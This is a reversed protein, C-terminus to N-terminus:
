SGYLTATYWRQHYIVELEAVATLEPLVDEQKLM